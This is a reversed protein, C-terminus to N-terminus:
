GAPSQEPPEPQGDMAPDRAIEMGHGAHGFFIGHDVGTAVLSLRAPRTTEAVPLAVVLVGNGYTVNATEGDVPSPLDLAREYAGVSWEDVLLDKVGKLVGRLEGALRLRGDATVEVVIDEPQLGPMPAAVTIREATRYVKVPIRQQQVHEQM